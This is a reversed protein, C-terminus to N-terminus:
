TLLAVQDAHSPLFGIRSLIRTRNNLGAGQNIKRAVAHFGTPKDLGFSRLNSQKRLVAHDIRVRFGHCIGFGVRLPQFM